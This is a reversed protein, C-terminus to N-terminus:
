GVEDVLGRRVADATAETRTRVGLGRLIAAVHHEVTRESLVLREAIERNRLGDAVLTLVELQRPSLGAANSRTAPRPGRPLQRAGLKRLRSLAFAAAPRAGLLQLDALAGRLLEEDDCSLVALASEYLFGLERWQEAAAVFEGALQLAYPEAAGEWGASELGARRRWDSLEGVLWSWGRTRALELTGSGVTAEDVGRPDGALWASEAKAAAVPGFRPLEGTPEALAWAEDLATLWEPDGRRARVLGLVVLALIRPTTSTRPTRVVATASAAADSWRGQDLELRARSALLYLRFLELGRDGCFALGADVSQAAEAQRRDGVAVGARLLMGRGVQESSGLLEAREVSLSLTQLGDEPAECAGITALAHVATETDGLQEALELARRGWAIAEEAAAAGARRSALEAFARALERSPPLRELVGVAARATREAEVTRGPCWLFESLRSLVRGEGLEDGSQRHCELADQLAAIGGDYDDTLYCADARRELLEAREAPSLHGAFRLTRAYQAAAERHAGLADAAAAAAPAFRLVAAGDSAVEAHHALQAVDPAGVSPEALAALALRHLEVKRNPAIAEEIALRSLEHRFRVGTGETVLMGCALCEELSAVASGAIAELLELPAQSPIIAAAELLGRGEPSLRTARALAADRLSEPVDVGDAALVEVVFFPNGGTKRHLEGPDVAHAASLASVAAPSLRALNMRTTSRSGALEGLVVRLPRVLALEDDRYTVLVLAPLTEVRRALLRLVDFTAEDAWHVDEIVFISPRRSRLEHALAAVVEHPLAGPAVLNELAVGHGDVALLLPGLPRPTFLPDCACRVVQASPLAEECFRRVLTTKGIGAEGRILVVQGHSSRRVDKLRGRLQSLPEERELLDLAPAEAM